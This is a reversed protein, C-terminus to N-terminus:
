ASPLLFLAISKPRVLENPAEEHVHQGCTEPFDAVEAQESGAILTLTSELAPNEMKQPYELEFNGL